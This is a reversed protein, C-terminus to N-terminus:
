AFARPSEHAKPALIRELPLDDLRTPLMDSLSLLLSSSERLIAHDTGRSLFLFSSGRTQLSYAASELAISNIDGRADGIRQNSFRM